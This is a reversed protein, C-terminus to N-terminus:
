KAAVVGFADPVQRVNRFGTKELRRLVGRTVSASMKSDPDGIYHFLKGGPRLVRRLEGYFEASYLEGALNFM